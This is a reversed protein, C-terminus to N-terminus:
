NTTKELSISRFTKTWEVKQEKCEKITIWSNIKGHTMDVVVDGKRIHEKISEYINKRFTKKSSKSGYPSLGIKSIFDIGTYPAHIYIAERGLSTAENCWNKIDEETITKQM